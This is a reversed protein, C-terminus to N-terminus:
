AELGDPLGDDILPRITQYTDYIGHFRRMVEHPIFYRRLVRRYQWDIFMLWHGEPKKEVFILIDTGNRVRVDVQRIHQTTYFVILRKKRTQNVWHSLLVNSKSSRADLTVWIEDFGFAGNEMSWVQRTTKILSANQLGYNASLPANLTYHLYEMLISMTITKGAGMTGMIGVLM